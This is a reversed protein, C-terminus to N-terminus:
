RGGFHGLDDILLSRERVWARTTDFSKRGGVVGSEFKKTWSLLVEACAELVADPSALVPCPGGDSDAVHQEDVRLHDIGPPLVGSAFRGISLVPIGQCCAALLPWSLRGGPDCGPVIAAHCIRQILMSEVPDQTDGDVCELRLKPGSRSEIMRILEGRLDVSLAVGAGVYITATTIGSPGLPLRRPQSDGTFVPLLEADSSDLFLPDNKEHSEPNEPDEMRLGASDYVVPGPWSQMRTEDLEVQKKAPPWPGHMVLTTGELVDARVFPIVRLALKLPLGHVHIEEAAHMATLVEPLEREGLGLDAMEAGQGPTFTEVVRVWHSDVDDDIGPIPASAM